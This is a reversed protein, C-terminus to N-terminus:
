LVCVCYVFYAESPLFIFNLTLEGPPCEKVCQRGKNRLYGEACRDCTDPSNDTCERCAPHCPIFLRSSADIFNGLRRKVKRPITKSYYFAMPAKALCRLAELRKNAEIFECYNCGGAAPLAQPGSCRRASDSRVSCNASCSKCVHSM